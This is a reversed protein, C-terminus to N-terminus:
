PAVVLCPDEDSVQKIRETRGDDVEEAGHYDDSRSSTAGLVNEVALLALPDADM